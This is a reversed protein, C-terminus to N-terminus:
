RGIKNLIEAIFMFVAIVLMGVLMGFLGGLIMAIVDVNSLIYEM